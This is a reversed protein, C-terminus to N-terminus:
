VGWVEVALCDFFESSGLPENSFTECAVSSGKLLDGDLWLGYGKDGCGFAISEATALIYFANVGSWPFIKGRPQLAFLFSEGTSTFAKRKQKIPDMVFAGFLHNVTDQVVFILPSHGEIRSYLTNLSTGHSATNYLLVFDSM